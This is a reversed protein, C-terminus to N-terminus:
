KLCLWSFYLLMATGSILTMRMTNKFNARAEDKLVQSFWHLYYFLIPLCFAIFVYLDILQNKRFCYLFMLLFGVLFVMGSFVFSGKVGLLISLTEDGRQADEEHQYVQTLPYTAGILCSCILGALLDNTTFGLFYDSFAYLCTYFIFAGQFFFVVLFSVIPYKKLRVSPHSYAKSLLNYVVVGLAFEWGVCLALLVGIWEMLISTIYLPREVKPPQKILAISGEDKDFYSNYGNSAPYIFLHLAVFVLLAYSNNIYPAASLAFLYVPLLLLSFPFRLHLLVSRLNVTAM